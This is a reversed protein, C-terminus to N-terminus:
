FPRILVSGQMHLVDTVQTELDISTAPAHEARDTLTMIRTEDGRHFFCQYGGVHSDARPGHCPSNPRTNRETM